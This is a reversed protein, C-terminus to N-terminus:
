AADVSVKLKLGSASVSDQLAARMNLRAGYAPVGAPPFRTRNYGGASLAERRTPVREPARSFPLALLQALGREHQIWEMAEVVIKGL